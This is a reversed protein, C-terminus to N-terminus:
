IVILILFTTVKAHSISIIYSKLKNSHLTIFLISINLPFYYHQVLSLGSLLYFPISTNLAHISFLNASKKGKLPYNILVVWLPAKIYLNIIVCM